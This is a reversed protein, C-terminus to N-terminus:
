PLHRLLADRGGKARWGGRRVSQSRKDPPSQVHHYWGSPNFLCDGPGMVLEYWEFEKWRSFAPYLPPAAFRLRHQKQTNETKEEHNMPRRSKRYERYQVRSSLYEVTSSFETKQENQCIPTFPFPSLHLSFDTHQYM